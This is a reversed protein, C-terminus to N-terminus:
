MCVYECAHMPLFRLFRDSDPKVSAVIECVKPVVIREPLRSRQAVMENNANIM